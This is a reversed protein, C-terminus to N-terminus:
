YNIQRRLERWSTLYSRVNQSLNNGLFKAVIKRLGPGDEFLFNKRHHNQPDPELGLLKFGEAALAAALYLDSTRFPERKTREM